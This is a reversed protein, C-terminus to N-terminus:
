EAKLAALVSRGLDSLIYQHPSQPRAVPSQPGSQAPPTHYESEVLGLMVLDSLIEQEPVSKSEVSLAHAVEQGFLFADRHRLLRDAVQKFLAKGNFRGSGIQYSREELAQFAKDEAPPQPKASADAEVNIITGATQGGTQGVSAVNGQGIQSINTSGDDAVQVSSGEAAQARMRTEQEPSEERALRHAIDEEHLAKMDKVKEVTWNAADGDVVAHHNRCLLIRNSYADLEPKQMSDDGRPGDPKDAVIHAEELHERFRCDPFSCEGGAGDRLKKRDAVSIVVEGYGEDNEGSGATTSPTYCFSRRGLASLAPDQWSLSFSGVIPNMLVIPYGQGTISYAIRAGDDTTAYKIKLETM